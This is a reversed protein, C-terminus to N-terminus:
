SSSLSHILIIIIMTLVLIIIIVIMVVIIRLVITTTKIMIIIIILGERSCSLTAGPLEVNFSSRWIGEATMGAHRCFGHPGCRSMFCDALPTGLCTTCGTDSCEVKNDALYWIGQKRNCM